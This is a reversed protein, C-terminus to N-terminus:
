VRAVKMMTDLLDLERDAQIYRKSRLSISWACKVVAWKLLRDHDVNFEKSWLKALYGIREPDRVLEDAGKPNRFANALEFTREGRVGKADFSTYGRHGLKVNDHHLDGHLPIIDRQTTLFWELLTKCLTLNKQATPATSESFEFEFMAKFWDDLTPLEINPDSMADHLRNAVNVLEVVAQKDDGSRVMDGLSPGDLWEILASGREIQYVLVAGEGRATKLLNFGAAENRMTGNFYIKLAAVGYDSSTVKWISALNTSTIFEPSSAGYRALMAKSPASQPPESSGIM